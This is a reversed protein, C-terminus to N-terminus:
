EPTWLHSGLKIYKELYVKVARYTTGIYTTILDLNQSTVIMVHGIRNRDCHDIIYPLKRFFLFGKKGIFGPINSEIKMM